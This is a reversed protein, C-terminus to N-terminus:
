SLANRSPTSSFPRLKLLMVVAMIIGSGLLAYGVMSSLAMQYISAIQSGAPLSTISFYDNRIINWVQWMTIPIMWVGMKSLAHTTRKRQSVRFIEEMVSHQLHSPAKLHEHPLYHHQIHFKLKEDETNM